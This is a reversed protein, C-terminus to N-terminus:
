GKTEQQVQPELEEKPVSNRRFGLHRAQIKRLHPLEAIGLKHETRFGVDEGLSRLLECNRLPSSNTSCCSQCPARVRGRAKDITESQNNAVLEFRQICVISFMVFVSM